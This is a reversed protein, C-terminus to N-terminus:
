KQEKIIDIALVTNERFEIRLYENRDYLYSRQLQFDTEWVTGGRRGLVPYHVSNFQDVPMADVTSYSWVENTSVETIREYTRTPPGYVIWAAMLSDGIQLQGNQLREQTDGPLTEFFAHEHQIRKEIQGQPTECGTLMLGALAGGLGCCLWNLKTMM